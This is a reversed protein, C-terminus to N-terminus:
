KKFFIFEGDRLKAKAPNDLIYRVCNGYHEGDRILRDYYDKEWLEGKRMLLKNIAHATFSKWSHLLEELKREGILSFLAHVHNPMVVWCYQTCRSGEFHNLADGVIRAFRPDRLLCSGEGADLWDEIQRSFQRHYELEKEQSWPRPHLRLWADRAAGWMDLKAAPISDGLRFTVFFTANDQQWHPLRNEHQDIAVLPNLFKPSDNKM